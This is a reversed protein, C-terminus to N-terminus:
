RLETESPHNSHVRNRWLDRIVILSFLVSIVFAIGWLNAYIRAQSALQPSLPTATMWAFFCANYASSGAMLVAAILALGRLINPMM